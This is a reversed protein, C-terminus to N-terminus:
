LGPNVNIIIDPHKEDEDVGFGEIHRQHLIRIQYKAGLGIHHKMDVYEWETINKWPSWRVNTDHVESDDFWRGQYIVLEPFEHAM